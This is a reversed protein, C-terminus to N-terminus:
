GKVRKQGDRQRKRAITKSYSTILKRIKYKLLKWHATM